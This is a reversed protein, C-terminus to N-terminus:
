NTPRTFTRMFGRAQCQVTLGLNLKGFDAAPGFSLELSGDLQMFSHCPWSVSGRAAIEMSFGGGAGRYSLAISADIRVKTLTFGGSGSTAPAAGTTNVPDQAETRFPGCDRLAGTCPLYESTTLGGFLM